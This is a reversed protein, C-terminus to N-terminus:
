SDTSAKVLTLAGRRPEGLSQMLREIGAFLMPVFLSCQQLCCAVVVNTGMSRGATRAQLLCRRCGGIIFALATMM